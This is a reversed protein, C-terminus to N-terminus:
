NKYYDSGYEINGEFIYDLTIKIEEVEFLLGELLQHEEQSDIGICDGDENEFLISQLNYQSIFKRIFNAWAKTNNTNFKNESIFHRLM